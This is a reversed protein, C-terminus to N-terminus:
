ERYLSPMRDQRSGRGPWRPTPRNPRIFSRRPPRQSSRGTFSEAKLSACAGTTAVRRPITACSSSSHPLPGTRVYCPWWSRFREM